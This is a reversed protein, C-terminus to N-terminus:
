RDEGCDGGGSPALGPSAGLADYLGHRPLGGARQWRRRQRREQGTRVPVNIMPFCTNKFCVKLNASSCAHVGSLNSIQINSFVFCRSLRPRVQEARDVELVAMSSSLPFVDFIFLEMKVGNNTAPTITSGVGDEDYYPAEQYYPIKKHAIHYDLTDLAPVVTDTLFALSFCM